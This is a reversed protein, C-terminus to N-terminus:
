LLSLNGVHISRKMLKAWSENTENIVKLTYDKNAAKNGLAFRNPPKEDPIKYNRFWDRNAVLTGHISQSNLHLFHKEVDDVDNVLSARPDDLSIAIIKWDLEGEDIMALAALTKVKLIQGIKRRREGIEVIDVLGNDGLAGEVEPNSFSPDEWTEMKASTYKRMEVVFNFVVDGLHLPIDHWPSVKKGSRDVIFVRYYDLTQPQGEEKIQVDPNYITRCSHHLRTRSRITIHSYRHFTGALVIAKSMTAM